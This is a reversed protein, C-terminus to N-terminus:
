NVILLSDTTKYNNLLYKKAHQCKFVLESRKNLLEELHQCKIIELKEHLCLLRKKTINSYAAVREVISWKLSPNKQHKEKIEKISPFVRTM